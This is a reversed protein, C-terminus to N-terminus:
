VPNGTTPVTCPGATGPNMGTGDSMYLNLIPEFGGSPIPQGNANTGGSYSWTRLTVNPTPNLLTFTFLQVDTDFSFTGTFSFNAGFGPVALLIGALVRLGFPRLM